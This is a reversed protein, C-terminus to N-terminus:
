EAALRLHDSELPAAAAKITLFFSGVAVQAFEVTCPLKKAGRESGWMVSCEEKDSSANALRDAMPIPLRLKEILQGTPFKSEGGDEETPGLGFVDLATAGWVRGAVLRMTTGDSRVLAVLGPQDDWFASKMDTDQLRRALAEEFVRFETTLRNLNPAEFIRGSLERILRSRPMLLKGALENCLNDIARENKSFLEKDPDGGSEGVLLVHALEHAVSFRRGPSLKNWDSSDRPWVEGLKQDESSDLVIDFIDKGTRLLGASGLIQTFRIAGVNLTRALDNLAATNTEASGVLEEIRKRARAALADVTRISAM